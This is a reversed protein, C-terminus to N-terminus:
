FGYLASGGESRTRVAGRALTRSGRRDAWGTRASATPHSLSEPRKTSERPRVRKSEWRNERM